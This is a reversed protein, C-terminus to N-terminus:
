ASVSIGAGVPASVVPMGAQSYASGGGNEGMAQSIAGPQGSSIVSNLMEAQESPSLPSTESSGFILDILLMKLIEDTKADSEVAEVAASALAIDALKDAISASKATISMSTINSSAQTANLEMM